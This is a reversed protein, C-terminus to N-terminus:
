RGKWVPERKELFAQTGEQQDESGFLAYFRLREEALGQSLPAEWAARLAAKAQRVALPPRWAIRFAIERAADLALGKPVVRNVLGLREAEPAALTRGALVVEAAVYRGVARPLRQTGGAGPILGLNLEPQGFRADQAAVIIDCSMALELGGGLAYGEVAAVMPKPFAAVQDWARFVETVLFDSPRMRALERIDAGAAFTGGSGTLIVVRVRDDEAAEQLRQSLAGLLEFSLANRVKPRHLTLELVYGRQEQLLPPEASPEGQPIGEHPTDM